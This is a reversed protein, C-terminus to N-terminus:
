EFPNGLPKTIDLFASSVFVLALVTVVAYTLPLLKRVDAQYRRGKRSRLREYTAIVVHGGDFPLLPVLNFVGIFVNIYFLFYLLNAVGSSAAHGGIQVIGVISTVRNEGDVADPASGGGSGSSGVAPTENGENGSLTDVYGSLGSPSFFDGLGKVSLWMTKGTLTVAERAGDVVGSKVMDFDPGVGLFGVPRGSPNTKALVATLVQRRGDREIEIAVQRGPRSQLYSRFDEYQAFSRGDVEVIRDGPQVGAAAAPSPSTLAGVTWRSEDDSAVGFGVYVVFSLVLAILFHMTSGAVAVSLRRWYPKQRYARPEDAPDVEELNNMGIIRVYAGLPLAKFGYETEGRRFSWLKPGFGIFFETVKMGASRATLFHGLEHLFIVVLLMVVFIVVGWGGARYLAVVLLAVLGLRALGALPGEVDRPGPVPSSSAGRLAAGPPVAAGPPMVAEQSEDRMMPAGPSSDNM